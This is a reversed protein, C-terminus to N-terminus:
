DLIEKGCKACKFPRGFLNTIPNIDNLKGVWWVLAKGSSSAFSDRKYQSHSISVHDTFGKCGGCYLDKHQGSRNLTRSFFEKAVEEL